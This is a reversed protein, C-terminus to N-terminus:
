WFPSHQQRLGKLPELACLKRMEKYDENQVFQEIEAWLEQRKEQELLSPAGSVESTEETNTAAISGISQSFALASAVFTLLSLRHLPIPM